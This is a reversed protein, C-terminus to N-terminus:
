SLNFDMSVDFQSLDSIEQIGITDIDKYNGDERIKGFSDYKKYPGHLKNNKYTYITEVCGTITDTVKFTGIRKNNKFEGEYLRYGDDSYNKFPGDKFKKSM